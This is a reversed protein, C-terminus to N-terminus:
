ENSDYNNPRADMAHHYIINQDPNMVPDCICIFDDSMDTSVNHPILDNDPAIHHSKATKSGYFIWGESHTEGKM